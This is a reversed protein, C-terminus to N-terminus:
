NRKALQTLAIRYEKAAADWAIRYASPYYGPKAQQGPTPVQIVEDRVAPDTAEHKALIYARTIMPEDFVFEGDWSGYLFTTTFPKYGAPNGTLAQIEPSRVDIWHMGMLPVAVAAAPAGGAATMGDVYFQARYQQAPLKGAKTGYAPDSPVISERVARPVKWFHFDFHPSDYVGAPEHGAPNWDFQVFTYPTPNKAPLELIYMHMDRMMDGTAAPLGQLAQESLAVGVEVPTAPDNPATAIYSRMTGNGLSQAAGYVRTPAATEHTPDKCAFLAVLATASATTAVLISSRTM